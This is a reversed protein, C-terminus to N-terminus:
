HPLNKSKNKRVNRLQSGNQKINSYKESSQKGASSQKDKDTATTTAIPGDIKNSNSKRMKKEMAKLAAVEEEM